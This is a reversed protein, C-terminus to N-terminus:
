KRVRKASTSFGEKPADFAIEVREIIDLKLFDLDKSFDIFLQYPHVKLVEVLNALNQRSPWMEGTEYNSITAPSVDILEALKEQSYNCKQRFFKLNRAFTAAINRETKEYSSKAAAEAKLRTDYVAVLSGDIWGQKM